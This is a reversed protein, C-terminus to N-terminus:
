LAREVLKAQENASKAQWFCPLSDLIWFWVKIIYDNMASHYCQHCRESFAFWWLLVIAQLLFIASLMHFIQLYKWKVKNRLLSQFSLVKEVCQVLKQFIVEFVWANHKILTELCEFTIFPRKWCNEGIQFSHHHFVWKHFKTQSSNLHTYSGNLHDLNIKTPRFEFKIQSAWTVYPTQFPGLVRQLM